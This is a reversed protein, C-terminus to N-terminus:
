KYTVQQFLRNYRSLDYFTMNACQSQLKTIAQLGDRPYEYILIQGHADIYAHLLNWTFNKAYNPLYEGRIFPYDMFLM